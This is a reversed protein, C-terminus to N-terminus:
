FSQKVAMGLGDPMELFEPGDELCQALLLIHEDDHLPRNQDRNFSHQVGSDPDKTEAGSAVFLCVVHNPRGAGGNEVVTKYAEILQATTMYIATM